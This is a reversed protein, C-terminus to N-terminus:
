EIDFPLISVESLQHWDVNHRTDFEFIFPYNIKAQTWIRCDLCFLLFLFVGM